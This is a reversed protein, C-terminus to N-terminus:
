RRRRLATLGLLAIVGVSAPEPAFELAEEFGNVNASNIGTDNLFSFPDIFTGLAPLPGAPFPATFGSNVFGSGTEGPVPDSGPSYGGFISSTAALSTGNNNFQAYAGDFNLPVGADIGVQGLSWDQNAQSLPGGSTTSYKFVLWEQPGDPVISVTLSVAGSDILTTGPSLIVNENFSDPSNEAQVQFTSGTVFLPDANASQWSVCLIAATMISWAGLMRRPLISRSFGM